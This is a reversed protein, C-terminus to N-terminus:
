FKPEKFSSLRKSLKHRSVQFLPTSTNTIVKDVDDGYITNIGVACLIKLHDSYCLKLYSFHPISEITFHTMSEREMRSANNEVSHERTTLPSSPMYIGLHFTAVTM